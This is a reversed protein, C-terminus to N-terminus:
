VKQAVTVAGSAALATLIGEAISIDSVGIYQDIAAIVIGVVVSIGITAAGNIKGPFIEKLAQTIAIIVAGIIVTAAVEM